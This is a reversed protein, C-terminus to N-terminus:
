NRSSMMEDMATRILQEILVSILEDFEDAFTLRKNPIDMRDAVTEQLLNGPTTRVYKVKGDATTVKKKVSLWGGDWNLTAKINGLRAEMRDKMEKEALIKQTYPNNYPNTNISFWSNWGGQSFNGNLYSDLNRNIDTLTCRGYADSTGSYFGQQRGYRSTVSRNLYLKIDSQWPSCLFGQSIENLFHGAEYDGIDSFYQEPNELFAPSGQFGRKVWDITSRLIAEITGNVLCWGIADMSPGFGQLTAVNKEYQGPDKVLVEITIFSGAIKQIMDTIFRQVYTGIMSSACGAIAGTIATSWSANSDAESRSNYPDQSNRYRNELSTTTGNDFGYSTSTANPDQFGYSTTATYNNFQYPDSTDTTTSTDPDTTDINDQNSTNDNTTDQTNDTNNDTTDDVINTDDTTNIADDIIFALAELETSFFNVDNPSYWTEGDEDIYYAIGDDTYGLPEEFPDNNTQARVNTITTLNIALLAFILTSGIIKFIQKKTKKMNNKSPSDQHKKMM